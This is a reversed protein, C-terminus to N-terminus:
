DVKKMPESFSEHIKTSFLSRTCPQSFGVEVILATRGLNDTVNPDANKQLLTTVAGKRGRYASLLLDPWGDLKKIM